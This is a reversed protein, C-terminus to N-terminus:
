DNNLRKVIEEYSKNKLEHAIALQSIEIQELLKICMITSEESLDKLVLEATAAVMSYSEIQVEYGLSTLKLIKARKDLDATREELLGALLLKNIGEMGTTYEIMLHNILETKKMEGEYKLTTLYFFAEPFPLQIKHMAIKHYAQYINALRSMIKLLHPKSSGQAYCINKEEGNSKRHLFDKCFDELSGGPQNKEFKDWLNVLEVLKHSPNM